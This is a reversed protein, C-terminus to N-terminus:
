PFRVVLFDFIVTNGGGPDAAVNITFGSTTKTITTITQSGAAPSGTQSVANALVHYFADPETESGSFTHVGSTGGGNVTVQGAFWQSTRNNATNATSQAAAAAVAAATATTQAATATTEALQAETAASNALIYAQNATTQAGAISSSGPDPLTGPNVVPISTQGQVYSTIGNYIKYLYDVILPLDGQANGSSRPPPPLFFLQKSTSPTPTTAM